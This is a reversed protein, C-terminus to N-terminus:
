VVRHSKGCRSCVIAIPGEGFQQVVDWDHGHVTCEAKALERRAENLTYRQETETEM